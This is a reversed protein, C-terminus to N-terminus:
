SPQDSQHGQRAPAPTPLEATAPPELGASGDLDASRPDGKWVALSGLTQAFNGVFFLVAFVTLLFPSSKLYAWGTVYLQRTEGQHPTIGVRDAFAHVIVDFGGEKNPRVFGVAPAQMANRCIAELSADVLGSRSELSRWHHALLDRLSAGAEVCPLTDLISGADVRESHVTISQHTVSERTRVNIEAGRLIPVSGTGWGAGHQVPTGLVVRGELVHAFADKASPASAQAAPATSRFEIVRERLAAQSYERHEVTDSQDAGTSRLSYEAAEPRSACGSFPTSASVVARVSDDNLRELVMKSGPGFGLTVSSAASAAPAAAAMINHDRDLAPIDNVQHVSLRGPGLDWTLYRGCSPEVTLLDTQAQMSFVNTEKTCTSMAFAAGLTIGVLLVLRGFTRIGRVVSRAEAWWRPWRNVV